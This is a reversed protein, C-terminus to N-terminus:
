WGSATTKGAGCPSAAAADAALACISISNEKNTIATIRASRVAHVLDNHFATLANQKTISSYSPIALAILIALVSLTVLLEVLTFGFKIQMGTAQNASIKLM